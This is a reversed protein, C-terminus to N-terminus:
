DDIWSPLTIPEASPRVPRYLIGEETLEPAFHIGEPMAEAMARPVAIKYNPHGTTVVAKTIKYPGHGGLLPRGM